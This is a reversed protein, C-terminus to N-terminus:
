WALVPDRGHDRRHGARVGPAQQRRHTAPHPSPIGLRYLAEGLLKTDWGLRDALDATAVIGAEHEGIVGALLALVEPMEGAPEADAIRSTAAVLETLVTDGVPAAPAHGAADGTLLGLTLRRDRGCEAAARTPALDLKATRIIVGESAGVGSLDDALLLAAGCHRETFKTADVGAACKGSGLAM